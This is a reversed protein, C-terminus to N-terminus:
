NHVVCSWPPQGSLKSPTHFLTPLWESSTPTPLRVRVSKARVQSLKKVKWLSMQEDTLHSYCRSNVKMIPISHTLAYSASWGIPQVHAVTTVTVVKRTLTQSQKPKLWCCHRLCPNQKLVNTLFTIWFACASSNPLSTSFAFFVIVPLTDLLHHQLYSPSLGM